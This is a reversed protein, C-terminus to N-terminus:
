KNKLTHYVGLITYLLISFFIIPSTYLALSTFYSTCIITKKFDYEGFLYRGVHGFSIKSVLLWAIFLSYFIIITDVTPSLNDKFFDNYFLLLSCMAIAGAPSPLGSFRVKKETNSNYSSLRSIITFTYIACVIFIIPTLINDRQYLLHWLITSPALGFTLLDAFSDLQKGYESQSNLKRALFGDFGDLIAAIILLHVSIELSDNAIFLVTALGLSANIYSFFSPLSKKIKNM